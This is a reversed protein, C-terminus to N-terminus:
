PMKLAKRSRMSRYTVRAVSIPRTPPPSPIRSSREVPSATGAPNPGAVYGVRCQSSQDQLAFADTSRPKSRRPPWNGVLKLTSLIATSASWDPGHAPLSSELVLDTGFERRAEEATKVGQDRLDRPSVVQISDNDSAQVLKATVTETLGLGLASTAPDQGVTDIPLM